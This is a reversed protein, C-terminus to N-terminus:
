RCPTKDIRFIGEVFDPTPDVYKDQAAVEKDFMIDDKVSMFVKM